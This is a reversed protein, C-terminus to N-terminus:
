FFVSAEAVISTDKIVNKGRLPIGSILNFDLPVPFKKAKFLGITSYNLGLQISHLQQETNQGLWRYRFAQYKEGKHQDEQKYQFTYQAQLKVDRHAQFSSGLSTYFSDGLDRSIQGDLSKSISSSATEPVRAAVQDPAQWTYNIRSWFTFRDEWYYQGVLGLGLDFQGDGTPVDVLRNIDSTRGTPLALEHLLAVTYNTQKSLQYKNVWRMDGLSTQHNGISEALPKYGYQDNKNSIVDDTSQKISEAKLSQGSDRLSDAFSQFSSSAVFGTSVHTKATIIPMVLASTWKPTMGWAFIPVQVDLEVNVEGTSRGVSENLDNGLSSLYGELVGQEAATERSRVIQQYSVNSNMSNGMGVVSGTSSFKNNASGMMYNYSVKRVGSPLVQAHDFTLPVGLNGGQVWPSFLFIASLLIKGTTTIVSM